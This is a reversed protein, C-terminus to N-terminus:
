EHVARPPRIVNGFMVRLAQAECCPSTVSDPAEGFPHEQRDEDGCDTCRYVYTM